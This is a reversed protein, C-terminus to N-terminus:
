TCYLEVHNPTKPNYDFWASDIVEATRERPTGKFVTVTSRPQVDDTPLLVVFVTSTVEQGNTSSTTRRDVVLRTKQEVYAPRDTDPDSWTEGEAGEGLLRVIDVRHPLHKAKLRAM